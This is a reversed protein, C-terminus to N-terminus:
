SAIKKSMAKLTPKKLTPKKLASKEPGAKVVSLHSVVKAKGAISQAKQVALPIQEARSVTGSLTVSGDLNSVGVSIVADKLRTESM